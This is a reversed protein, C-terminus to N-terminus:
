RRSTQPRSTSSSHSSGDPFTSPLLGGAAPVAVSDGDGGGTVLTPEEKPPSTAAIPAVRAREAKRCGALGAQNTTTAPSTALTKEQASKSSSVDASPIM